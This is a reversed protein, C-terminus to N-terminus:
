KRSILENVIGKQIEPNKLNNNLKSITNIVKMIEKKSYQSNIEETQQLAKKQLKITEIQEKLLNIVQKTVDNDQKLLKQKRFDIKENIAYIIFTYQSSNVLEPNIGIRNVTEYSVDFNNIKYDGDYFLANAEQIAAFKLEPTYAIDEGTDNQEFCKDVVMNIFKLTEELTLLKKSKEM